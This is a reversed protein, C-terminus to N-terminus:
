KKMKLFNFHYVLDFFMKLLADGLRKFLKPSHNRSRKVREL